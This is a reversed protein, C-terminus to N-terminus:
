IGTPSNSSLTKGGYDDDPAVIGEDGLCVSFGEEMVGHSKCHLISNCDDETRITINGHGFCQM